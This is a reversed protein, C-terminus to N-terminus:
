WNLWEIVVPTGAPAAELAQPLHFICNARVVSAYLNSAQPGTDEVYLQGDDGFTAIGRAFFHLGAVKRTERLLLAPHLPRRHMTRGLMAALAPRVYQEFCMASSVPNGPLGFVPKGQLQGFALPKGPRQKVKWFLLSMGFEDLVDKVLDYDGVSVGGAFILVDAELAKEIATAISDRNDRALLAPLGIGGAAEVQARLAAGSSNRIKGPMLPEGPAVLEDGTAIVACVPPKYVDISSYGLTALMGIVPPTILQGANFVLAGESVDQGAPRVHQGSTPARNFTVADGVTADVWEIPAVADAGEPFAAGTMIKMCTGSTIVNQSVVGAPIQDIERLTVPLEAMDASRVAYGDMASNAFPPIADRSVIDEALTMGLAEEFPVTVVPQRVLINTIMARAQDVPIFVEM